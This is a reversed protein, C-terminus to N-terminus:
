LRHHVGLGRGPVGSAPVQFVSRIPFSFSENKAHSFHTVTLILWRMIMGQPCQNRHPTDQDAAQCRFDMAYGVFTYQLMHWANYGNLLFVVAGFAWQGRGLEGIDGYVRDIDLM